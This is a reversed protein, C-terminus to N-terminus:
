KKKKSIKSIGTEGQCRCDSSLCVIKWIIAVIYGWFYVQILGTLFSPWNVGSFGFFNMQMMQLHLASQTPHFYPWFFCITFLLVFLLGMKHAHYWYDHHSCCTNNKNM